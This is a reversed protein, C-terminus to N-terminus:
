LKGQRVQSIVAALTVGDNDTGNELCAECKDGARLEDSDLWEQVSQINNAKIFELANGISINNCACLSKEKKFLHSYPM